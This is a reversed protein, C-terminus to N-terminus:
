ISVYMRVLIFQLEMQQFVIESLFLFLFIM